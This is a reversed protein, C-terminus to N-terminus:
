IKLFPAFIYMVILILIMNLFMFEGFKYSRKM